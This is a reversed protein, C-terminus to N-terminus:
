TKASVLASIDFSEEPEVVQLVVAWVMEEFLVFDDGTLTEVGLLINAPLLLKENPLVSSTFANFVKVATAFTGAPRAAIMSSQGENTILMYLISENSLVTGNATSLQM